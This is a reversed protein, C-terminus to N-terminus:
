RVCIEQNSSPQADISLEKEAQQETSVRAYLVVRM